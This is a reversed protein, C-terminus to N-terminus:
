PLIILVVTIFLHIVATFHLFRCICDQTNQQVLSRPSIKLATSPEEFFIDFNNDQRLSAHTVYYILAVCNKESRIFIHKLKEKESLIQLIDRVIRYYIACVNLVNLASM